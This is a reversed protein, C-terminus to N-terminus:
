NIQAKACKTAKDCFSKRVSRVIILFFGRMGLEHKKSAKNKKM